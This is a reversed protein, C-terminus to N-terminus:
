KVKLTIKIKIHLSKLLRLLKALRIGSCLTVPSRKRRLGKLARLSPPLPTGAGPTDRDGRGTGRM